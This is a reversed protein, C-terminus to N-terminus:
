NQQIINLILPVKNTTHSTFPKGSDPDTMTEANGHDASFVISGSNEFQLLAEPHRAKILGRLIREAEDHRGLHIELAGLELVIVTLQRQCAFGRSREVAQVLVNRADGTHGQDVFFRALHLSAAEYLALDEPSRCDTAREGLLTELERQWAPDGSPFLASM